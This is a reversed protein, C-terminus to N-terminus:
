YNIKKLFRKFHFLFADPKEQTPVHGCFPIYHLESQVMLRQFQLATEPPTIPDHQGWVLLTPTKIESLEKHTKTHTAAKTFRIARLVVDPHQIAQFVDQVMLDPPVTRDYFIDQTAEKVYDYNKRKFFGKSMPINSLGSSGCLTLGKIISGPKHSSYIAAGGGMSSGILVAEDLRLTKIFDDIYDGLKKVTCDILPLDYMPLYPMIFR